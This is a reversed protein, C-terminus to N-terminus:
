LSGKKYKICQYRPKGVTAKGYEIASVPCLNICAMCHTCETGWVPKKDALHINSLPCSRECTGCGICSDSVTFKKATMFRNYCMDICMETSLIEWNKVDPDPFSSGAAIMRALARIRARAKDVIADAEAKEKMKFMAIYNQPMTVNATGQYDFGKEKALKELYWPCACVSTGASTVIFWAKRNGYMPNKRLFDMFVRPPASIYVPSVFVFPKRSQLFHVSESDRLMDNISRVEDDLLDGLMEAVFRSNGTGTFYLIM